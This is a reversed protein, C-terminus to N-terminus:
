ADVQFCFCSCDLLSRNIDFLIVERDDPFLYIFNTILLVLYFLSLECRAIHRLRIPLKRGTINFYGNFSVCFCFSRPKM